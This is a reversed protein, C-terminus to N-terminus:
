NLFSTSRTEDPTGFVEISIFASPRRGRAKMLMETNPVGSSVSARTKSSYSLRATPLPAMIQKGLRANRRKCDICNGIVRRVASHGQVIWYKQRVTALVQTPGSHGEVVHYHRILLETIHHKNPIIMPHKAEFAVPARELRGGVRLVKNDLVPQLKRLVSSESLSKKTYRGSIFQEAQSGAQKSSACLTKLLTYEQPFSHRQVNKVVERTANDIEKVSLPGTTPAITLKSHSYKYCIYQKFRLIWAIAKQLRYWSSYRRILSDTIGEHTVVHVRAEKKVEPDNIPLEPLFTPQAPWTSEDHWLFEPGTLWERLKSSENAKIGRSAIDAPNSTTRIHKWQSPESVDQIMAVRNAVFTQFRRSQNRIYQLVSTSDTWYTTSHIAYELEAHIISNLKISVVAASLELRPISVTKTPAVRSKGIVFSCHINKNHDVLRLYSVARYGRQSTDSFHHLQVQYLEGFHQPKFCRQVSMEQLKPLYKLWTEWEILETEPIREDWGYKQNCLTQLVQKAPLIVPAAFGLPDYMASVTSLIKRRTPIKEKEVIRFNFSDEQMNWQLGLTHEVPLGELDLDLVSAARESKPIASLVKKDNSICKTLNFGGRSLLDILQNALETANETTPVSKLCDDVYFNRNVTNITEADFEDRNDNAVKKLSFSACSPSSTAGFLHVLMQHVVPEKSLDGEPWWLFRLSNRDTPSVRVQHFMAQIDSALAVREQRFRMLVGVLSNTFGPGQLLNANLSTGQCTAACDFVVRLKNPKQPHTVPHHPLYWARKIINDTNLEEDPVKRAYGNDLYGSITERYKDLLSQDKLLRKKLMFLRKEAYARNDPLTIEKSKWPLSLQYHGEILEVSDEMQILAKRDEPSMSTQSDLMPENFDSKFMKEVQQHLAEDDQHLFNVHFKDSETTGIPGILTWGLPTRVAYPQGKRGRRQELVWHAEPVDSGILITVEKDNISALEVGDLHSWNKIDESTPITQKSISLEDVTWLKNLEIRENSQLGKVSLAVEHGKRESLQGNVTTLSFKTPSGKIGLKDTLSVSCLSVDSGPDLLAYTEVEVEGDKGKVTVPITRLCVRSRTEGGTARCQGTAGAGNVRSPTTEPKHNARTNNDQNSANSGVPHLYTNHKEGCGPVRCTNESRCVNATHNRGLCNSCLEAQTVFDKRLKPTKEKFADCRTLRHSDSCLPCKPISKREDHTIKTNTMLTTAKVSSNYQPHRTHKPKNSDREPSTGIIQGYMTNALSAREEVFKALHEFNPEKDQLILAGARDAWRSQLHIPLRKVVKVLNDSSNIDAQFGMNGLTLQCNQMQLSLESLGSSDSPKLQPGSILRNIYAHAIVHRQGYRTRLIEQAKKYAEDKNQIIVCNKISERAKGTCHQVLYTLRSEADCVRKGINTEFNNIFTWYNIPNGEFTLLERKPMEFGSRVSSAMLLMAEQQQRLLQELQNSSPSGGNDDTTACTANQPSKKFSFVPAEPNMTSTFVPEKEMKAKPPDVEKQYTSIKEAKPQISEELDLELNKCVDTTQSICSSKDSDSNYLEENVKAKEVQTEAELLDMKRAMEEHKETIEELIRREERKMDAIQRQIEQKRILQKYEVECRLVDAKAKLSRKSSRSSAGTSATSRSSGSIVSLARPIKEATLSKQATPDPTPVKVQKIWEKFYVDFEHKADIIGQYALSAQQKENEDDLYWFYKENSEICKNYANDLVNKAILVKEYNSAKLM